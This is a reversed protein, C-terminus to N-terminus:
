IYNNKRFFFHDFILLKRQLEPYEVLIQFQCQMLEKLNKDGFFVDDFFLNPNSYDVPKRAQISQNVACVGFIHYTELDKFLYKWNQLTNIQMEYYIKWLISFNKKISLEIEKSGFKKPIIKGEALYSSLLSMFRSIRIVSNVPKVYSFASRDIKIEKKNRILIKDKELELIKRRASEKPINLNQSIDSVNFKEIAIIDRSYFEEFSLKVLNRSYFDLTKKILYILILFKNHDKFPIYVNSMWEMQQSFWVPGLQQYNSELIVLVEEKYIQRTIDPINIKM